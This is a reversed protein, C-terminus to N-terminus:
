ACSKESGSFIIFDGFFGDKSLGYQSFQSLLFIIKNLKKKKLLMDLDFLAHKFFFSRVTQFIITDKFFHNTNIKFRIQYM